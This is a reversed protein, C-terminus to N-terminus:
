GFCGARYRNSCIHRRLSRANMTPANSASPANRVRNREARGRRWTRRHWARLVAARVSAAASWPRPVHLGAVSPRLTSAFWQALGHTGADLDLLQEAKIANKYLDRYLKELALYYGDLFWFALAPVTALAALTPKSDKASALGIAAAALAVNWGKMQFSNGALRSIIGQIFELNKTEM